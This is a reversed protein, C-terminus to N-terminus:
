KLIIKIKEEPNNIMGLMEDQSDFKLIMMGLTANSGTFAPIEDGPKM